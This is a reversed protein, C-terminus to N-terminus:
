HIWRAQVLGISTGNSEIWVLGDATLRPAASHGKGSVAVQEGGSGGLDFFYIDGNGARQDEWVVRTGLVDANTRFGTAASLDRVQGTTLNRARIVADSTGVYEEWVVWDGDITPRDQHHASAAAVIPAGGALPQVVIQGLSTSSAYEVFAVHTRSLALHSRYRTADTLSARTGSWTQLVIKGTAPPTTTGPKGGHGGATTTEYDVWAYGLENAALFEKYTTPTGSLETTGGSAYIGYSTGAYLLAIQHVGNAATYLYYAGSSGYWQASTGTWPVFLAAASTTSPYTLVSVGESGVSLPNIATLGEALIKVGTILSAAPAADSGPTADASPAGGDSGPAPGGGGGTMAGGTGAGSAGGTGGTSTGAGGGTANGGGAGAAGGDSGHSQDIDGILGSNGADPHSAPPQNGPNEVDVKRCGVAVLGFVLITMFPHRRESMM